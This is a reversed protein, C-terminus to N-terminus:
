PQHRGVFRRWPGSGPDGGPHGCRQNRHAHQPRDHDHAAMLGRRALDDGLAGRVAVYRRRLDAAIPGGGRGQDPVGALGAEFMCRDPRRRRRGSRRRGARAPWRVVVVLVVVVLVVVVVVVVVVLVDVVDVVDVVPVDV